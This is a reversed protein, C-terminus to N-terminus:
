IHASRLSVNETAQYHLTRMQLLNCSIDAVEITICLNYSLNPLFMQHWLWVSSTTRGGVGSSGDRSLGAAALALPWESRLYRYVGRDGSHLRPGRAPNRFSNMLLVARCSPARAITNKTRRGEGFIARDTLQTAPTTWLPLTSYPADLTRAHQSTRAIKRIPHVTLELLVLLHTLSDANM